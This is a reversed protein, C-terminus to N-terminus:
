IFQFGTIVAEDKKTKGTIVRFLAESTFEEQTRRDTRRFRIKWIHPTFVTLELATVYQYSIPEGLSEIISKRFTAFGKLDLNKQTEEPLCAIFDKGDNKLFAELLRKSLEYEIGSPQKAAEERPLERIVTCGGGALLAGLLALGIFFRM